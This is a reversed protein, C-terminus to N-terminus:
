SSRDLKDDNSKRTLVKKERKDNKKTEKVLIFKLKFMLCRLM